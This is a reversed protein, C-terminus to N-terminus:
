RPATWFPGCGDALSSFAEYVFLLTGSSARVAMVFPLAFETGAARCAGRLTGEFVRSGDSRPGHDRETETRVRAYRESQRAFFVGVEPGQYPGVVSVFEADPAWRAAWAKPDGVGMTENFARDAEAAGRTDGPPAAAVPEPWPRAGRYVRAASWPGTSPGDFAALLQGPWPFAYDALGTLLVTQSSLAVWRPAEAKARRRLRGLGEVAAAPGTSVGASDTWSAAPTFCPALGALTGSSVFDVLARPCQARVPAALLTALLALAPM